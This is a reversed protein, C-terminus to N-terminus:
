QRNRSFRVVRMLCSRSLATNEALAARIRIYQSIPVSMRSFCPSCPHPALIMSRSEWSRFFANGRIDPNEGRFRFYMCLNASVQGSLFITCRVTACIGQRLLIARISLSLVASRRRQYAWFVMSFPQLRSVVSAQFQCVTALNNM